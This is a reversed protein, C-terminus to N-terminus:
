GRGHNLRPGNTRYARAHSGRDADSLAWARLCNGGGLGAACGASALARATDVSDGFPVMAIAEATAPDIVEKHRGSASDTWVGDIYQQYTGDPLLAARPPSAAVTAM